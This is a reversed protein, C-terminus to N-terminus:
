KGRQAGAIRLRAERNARGCGGFVQGVRGKGALLLCEEVHDADFVHQVLHFLHKGREVVVAGDAVAYVLAEGVSVDRQRRTDLAHNAAVQPRGADHERDVRFGAEVLDHEDRRAIAEAFGHHLSCDVGVLEIHV